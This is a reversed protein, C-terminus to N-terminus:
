KLTPVSRQITTRHANSLPSPTEDETLSRLTLDSAVVPSDRALNTSINKKTQKGIWGHILDSVPYQPILFMKRRERTPIETREASEVQGGRRKVHQEGIM